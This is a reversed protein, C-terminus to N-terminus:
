SSRSAFFYTSSGRSTRPKKTSVHLFPRQSSMAARRPRPASMLLDATVRLSVQSLDLGGGDARRALDALEKATPTPM